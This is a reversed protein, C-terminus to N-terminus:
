PVLIELHVQAIAQGDLDGTDKETRGVKRCWAVLGGLTFQHTLPNDPELATDLADLLNNLMTEPVADPNSGANSYLYAEARITLQELVIGESWESQEDDSRLFLAPQQPVQTWMKLRRGTALFGTSLPVSAANATPAISLTLPSLSTIVSGKPISGGVVPLGVFLGVTTSPSQLVPNNALTGATFSTSISDVLSSFLTELITERAPRGM